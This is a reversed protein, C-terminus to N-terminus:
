SPRVLGLKQIRSRLTSPNIDLIAAAGDTGRIRWNTEKLVSLIHTREVEELRKNEINPHPSPTADLGEDLQLTSGDSLIVAREIINELERVNGPWAYRQLADM